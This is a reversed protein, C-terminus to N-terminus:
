DDCDMKYAKHGKKSAKGIKGLAMKVSAMDQASALEEVAEKLYGMGKKYNDFDKQQEANLEKQDSIALPIFDQANEVNSLLDAAINNVKASDGAKAAKKIAKMSDKMNDMVEALDTKGCMPHAAFTVPSLLTLATVLTTIIKKMILELCYIYFETLYYNAKFPFAIIDRLTTNDIPNHFM